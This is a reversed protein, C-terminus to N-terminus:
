PLLIKLAIVMLVSGILRDILVEKKRLAVLMKTRAFINAVLTYWIGDTLFPIIASITKTTLSANADVFQTFLALFFMSTKPNLISIMFGEKASQLYSNQKDGLEKDSGKTKPQWSKYGLWFLYVSGVYTIVKFIHPNQKLLIALGFMTLSAYILIGFAHAWAVIIGNIPKANLTNKMVVVFSPGPSIAALACVVFLWFLGYLDM